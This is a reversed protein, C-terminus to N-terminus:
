RGILLLHWTFVSCAEVWNKMKACPVWNGVTWTYAKCEVTVKPNGSGLDFAHKKKQSAIGLAVEKVKELKRGNVCKREITEVVREAMCELIAKRQKPSGPDALLM